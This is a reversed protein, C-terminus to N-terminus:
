PRVRTVKKGARRLSAVLGDEGPLHLAGVAFVATRGSEMEQIIRRAFAANRRELLLMWVRAFETVAAIRKRESTLIDERGSFFVARTASVGLQPDVWKRLMHDLLPVEQARVVPDRLISVAESLTELFDIRKGQARAVAALQADLQLGASQTEAQSPLTRLQSWFLAIVIPRVRKVREYDVGTSEFRRKLRSLLEDSLLDDLTQGDPLAMLPAFNAVEDASPDASETFFAETTLIADLVSRPLVRTLPDASHYTGLLFSPRKGAIRYLFPREWGSAIAIPARSMCRHM